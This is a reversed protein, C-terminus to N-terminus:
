IALKLCGPGKSVKILLSRNSVVHAEEEIQKIKRIVCYSAEGRAVIELSLFLVLLLGM